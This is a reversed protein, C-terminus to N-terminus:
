IARSRTTPRGVGCCCDVGSLPREHHFRCVSSRSTLTNRRFRQGSGGDGCGTAFDVGMAQEPLQRTATVATPAASSRHSRPPTSRSFLPRLPASRRPPTLTRRSRGCLRRVVERSQPGCHLPQLRHGAAATSVSGPMLCDNPKAPAPRSQSYWANSGNPKHPSERRRRGNEGARLGSGRGVSPHRLAASPRRRVRRADLKCLPV